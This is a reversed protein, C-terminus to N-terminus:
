GFSKTLNEILNPKEKKVLAVGTDYVQSIKTGAVMKKCLEEELNVLFNYNAQVDESPNVLLTRVINSCYSKYRVGLSCVIAGFHLYNKDSVVTFKLSYNGGSQIIPPYCLDLLSSDVGSIFKKDALAAEAGEALKAHKV